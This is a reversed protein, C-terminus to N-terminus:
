YLIQRIFTLVSTEEKIKEGFGWNTRLITKVQLKNSISDAWPPIKPFILVRWINVKGGLWLPPTEKIFCQKM